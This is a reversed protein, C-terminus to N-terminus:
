LFNKRFHVAGGLAGQDDAGDFAIDVVQAFVNHSGEHFVASVLDNVQSFVHIWLDENLCDFVMMCIQGAEAGEHGGGQRFHFM